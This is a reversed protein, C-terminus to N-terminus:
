EEICTEPNIDDWVINALKLVLNVFIPVIFVIIAAIIRKIFRDRNKKMNDENTDFTARFFDTIGFVLLLIPVTIRIIKMVDNIIEVVDDDFLEKCNKPEPKNQNPNNNETNDTQYLFAYTRNGIDKLYFTEREISNGPNNYQSYLSYPCNESYEKWLEKSTIEIETIGSFPTERVLKFNSENYSLKVKVNSNGNMGYTCERIWNEDKSQYGNYKSECGGNDDGNNFYVYSGNKYACAPCYNFKGTNMSFGTIEEDNKFDVEQDEGAYTVTIKGNSSQIIELGDQGNKKPYTCTLEEATDSSSKKIPETSILPYYSSFNKGEEPEDYTYEVRGNDYNVYKPCGNDKFQNKHDIKPSSLYLKNKGKVKEYMYLKADEISNNYLDSRNTVPNRTYYVNIDGTSSQTILTIGQVCGFCSKNGDYLCSLEPYEDARVSNSFMVFSILFTFLLFLKKKM